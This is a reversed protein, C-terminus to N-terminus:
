PNREYKTQFPTRIFLFPNFCHKLGKKNSFIL